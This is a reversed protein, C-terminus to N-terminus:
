KKVGVVVKTITPVLEESWVSSFGAAEVEGMLYDATLEVPDPSSILVLMWLAASLPGTGDENVMFDHLVVKGGPRLVAYAKDMM